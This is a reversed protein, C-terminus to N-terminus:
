PNQTLYRDVINRRIRSVHSATTGIMRAIDNTTNGALALDAVKRWAPRMSRLYTPVDVRAQATEYPTAAHKDTLADIPNDFGALSRLTGSGEWTVPLRPMSLAKGIAENRKHPSRAMICRGNGRVPPPLARRSNRPRSPRYERRVRCTDPITRGSLVRKAAYWVLVSPRIEHLKGNKHLRSFSDCLHVTADQMAEDKAESRLHRFCAGLLRRATPLFDELAVQWSDESCGM